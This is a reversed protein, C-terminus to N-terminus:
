HPPLPKVPHLVQVQPVVQWFCFSQYECHRYLARESVEHSASFLIGLTVSKQM